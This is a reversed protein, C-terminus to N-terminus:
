SSWTRHPCSELIVEVGVGKRRTEERVERERELTGADEIGIALNIWPGGKTNERRGIILFWHKPHLSSRMMKPSVGGKFSIVDVSTLSTNGNPVLDIGPESLFLNKEPL